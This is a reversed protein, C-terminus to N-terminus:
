NLSHELFIELHVRYSDVKGPGLDSEPFHQGSLVDTSSGDFVEFSLPQDQANSGATMQSIGAQNHLEVM